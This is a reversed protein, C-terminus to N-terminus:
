SELWLTLRHCVPQPIRFPLNRIGSPRYSGNAQACHLRCYDVLNLRERRATCADSDSLLLRRCMLAVM